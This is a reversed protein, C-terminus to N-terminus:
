LAGALVFTRMPGTEPLFYSGRPRMLFDASLLSYAAESVTIARRSGSAALVKAVGIAGGWLNRDTGDGFASAMVPGVDIAIRFESGEGWGATLDVLRDRVDLAAVAVLRAAVAPSQAGDLAAVLVVQDDLLAAYGVSNQAVARQVEDIVADMRTRNDGEGRRAVPLWDPMRIVAVAAQELQGFALDDPSMAFHLLRRQLAVRRDGLAREVRQEAIERADAPADSAAAPALGGAPLYRLAFLSALALCFEAMGDNREGSTPDEVKLMGLLRKGSHIPSIHVGETGLPQLYLAALEETRPDSRAVPADIEALEELAAFLRSFEDRYLEAGATHANAPPDFNDECVLTRGNAALYWVGVRKAQCIEAARETAERVGDAVDRDMLNSRAALEALTQARAELAQHRDRAARDRREAQLSRWMMLVALAVMLLFVVGSLVLALKGSSAVFGLFDSEPAVILVSWNRGTLAKLAGSSVIIRQSGFDLLKRGVGEVKLQNYIRTLLPDGLEDLQPLAAGEKPNAIWSDSPFAIVRGKADIVLAKGHLGIELSKLFSSLASLEIDIGLVAVLRRDAAYQPLAYTIGPRKVTFFIYPTTWFAHGENMAGQYWGRTRPDFTDNPDEHRGVVAGDKDRRTWTVRHGGDRRDVLKTDLGGEANRSIYLFNGGPDGYSFGAIQRHRGLTALVFPEAAVAGDFVGREGGIARASELFQEAPALYAGMQIAIRQDIADLLDNSLTVAGRRNTDYVTSAIVAAIAMVAVVALIPAGGVVLRRWGRSGGPPRVAPQVRDTPYAVAM